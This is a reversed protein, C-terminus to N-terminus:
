SHDLPLWEMVAELHHMPYHLCFPDNHTFFLHLLNMAFLKSIHFFIIPFYLQNRNQKTQINVLDTSIKVYALPLRCCKLSITEEEVGYRRSMQFVIWFGILLYARGEEARDSSARRLAWMVQRESTASNLYVLSKFRVLQTGTESFLSQRQCFISDM